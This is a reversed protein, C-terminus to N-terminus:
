EVEILTTNTEAAVAELSEGNFYGALLSGAQESHTAKNSEMSVLKANPM